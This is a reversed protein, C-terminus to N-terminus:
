DNTTALQKNIMSRLLGSVTMFGLNDAEKKLKEYTEDPIRFTITHTNSIVNKETM